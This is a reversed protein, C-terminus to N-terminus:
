APQALRGASEVLERVCARQADADVTAVPASAGLIAVLGHRGAVPVAAKFLGEDPAALVAYGVDRVHALFQELQPPSGWLAAGKEWFPHASRYEQREDLSAFAQYVLASATTYPHLVAGQPQQVEGPREPIVRLVAMIEQGARRAVIYQVGARQGALRLLEARWAATGLAQDARRALEGVAGALRYVGPRQTKCVWGAAVLTRLLNHTTPPKLGLKGALERLTLGEDSGSLLEVIEIGRRLSQVLADPM